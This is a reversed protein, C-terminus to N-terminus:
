KDAAAGALLPLRYQGVFQGVYSAPIRCGIENLNNRLGNEEEMREDPQRVPLDTALPLFAAIFHDNGTQARVRLLVAFGDDVRQHGLILRCLRYWRQGDSTPKLLM